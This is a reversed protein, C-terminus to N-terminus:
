FPDIQGDLGTSEMSCMKISTWLFYPLFVFSNKIVLFEHVIPNVLKQPDKPRSFPSHQVDPGVSGIALMNASM